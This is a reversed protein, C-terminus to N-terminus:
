HRVSCCQEISPLINNNLVEFNEKKKKAMDIRQKEWYRCTQRTSIMKNFVM